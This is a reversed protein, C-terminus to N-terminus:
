LCSLLQVSDFGCGPEVVYKERTLVFLDDLGVVSLVADLELVVDVVVQIRVDDVAVGVLLIRSGV